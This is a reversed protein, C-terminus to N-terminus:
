EENGSDSESAAPFVAAASILQRGLRVQGERPLHERVVRFFISELTSAPIRALVDDTPLPNLPIVRPPEVPDSRMPVPSPSRPPAPRVAVIVVEDDDVELPAPHVAVIVVDDDDEEIEM